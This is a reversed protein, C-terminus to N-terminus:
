APTRVALATRSLFTRLSKISMLSLILLFFVFFARHVLHINIQCKQVQLYILITEKMIIYKLLFSVYKMIM